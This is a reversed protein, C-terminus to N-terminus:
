SVSWVPQFSWFSCSKLFQSSRFKLILFYTRPGTAPSPARQDTSLCLVMGLLRHPQRLQIFSPLATTKQGLRNLQVYVEVNALCPQQLSPSTRCKSSTVIHAVSQQSAFFFPCSVATILRTVKQVGNYKRMCDCQRVRSCSAKRIDPAFAECQYRCLDPPHKKTEANAHWLHTRWGM